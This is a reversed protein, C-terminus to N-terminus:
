EYGEASRFHDEKMQRGVEAHIGFRKSVLEKLVSGPVSWLQM